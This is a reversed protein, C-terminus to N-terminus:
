QGRKEGWRAGLWLHLALSIDEDSQAETELSPFDGNDGSHLTAPFASLTLPPSSAARGLACLIQGTSM